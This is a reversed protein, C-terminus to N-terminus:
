DVVVVVVVVVMVLLVVSFSFLCRSGFVVMLTQRTRSADKATLMRAKIPTNLALIM